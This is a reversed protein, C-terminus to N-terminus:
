EAQGVNTQFAYKLLRFSLYFVAVAVPWFIALFVIDQWRLATLVGYKERPWVYHQQYFGFSQFYSEVLTPLLLSVAAVASLVRRKLM